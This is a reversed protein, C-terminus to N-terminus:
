PLWPESVSLTSLSWGSQEESILCVVGYHSEGGAVAAIYQHADRLMFAYLLWENM